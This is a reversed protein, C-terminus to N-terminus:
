EAADHITTQCHVQTLPQARAQPKSAQRQFTPSEGALSESSHSNQQTSLGDNSNKSNTLLSTECM